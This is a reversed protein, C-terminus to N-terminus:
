SHNQEEVQKKFLKSPKFAVVRRASITAPEGTKPNRGIRENKGRISFKGFSKIEIDNGKALNSKIIDMIKEFIEKAEALNKDPLQEWIRKIIQEKTM